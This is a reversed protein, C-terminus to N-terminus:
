EKEIDYKRGGEGDFSKVCYCENSGKTLIVLKKGLIVLETVLIM